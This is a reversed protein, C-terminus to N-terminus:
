DKKFLEGLMPCLTCFTNGNAASANSVNSRTSFHPCPTGPQGPTGPQAPTVPAKPTRDKVRTKPSLTRRTPKRYTSTKVDEKPTEKPTEKPSERCTMCQTRVTEKNSKEGKGESSDCTGAICTPWHICTRCIDCPWKKCHPWDNCYTCRNGSRAECRPWNCACYNHEKQEPSIIIYHKNIKKSVIGNRTTKARITVEHKNGESCKKMASHRTMKERCLKVWKYSGNTMPVKCWRFTKSDHDWESSTYRYYKESHGKAEQSLSIYWKNTIEELSWTTCSLSIATKEDDEKECIKWNQKNEDALLKHLKGKSDQCYQYWTKGNLDRKWESNEPTM